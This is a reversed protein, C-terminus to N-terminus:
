LELVWVKINPRHAFRLGKANAAHGFQVDFAKASGRTIKHNNQPDWLQQAFAAKWGILLEGSPYSWADWADADDLIRHGQPGGLTWRPFQFSEHSLPVDRFPGPTRLYGTTLFDWATTDEVALHEWFDDALVVDDHLMMILPHQAALVGHNMMRALWAHKSWEPRHHYQVDSLAAALANEGVIIIEYKSIKQNHISELLVPLLRQRSERGDSPIVFSVGWTDDIRM